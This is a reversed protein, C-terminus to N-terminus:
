HRDNTLGLLECLARGEPSFKTSLKTIVTTKYRKYMCVSVYGCGCGCGGGGCVCVCVCVCM